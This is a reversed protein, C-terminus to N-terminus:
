KNSRGPSGPRRHSTQMPPRERSDKGEVVMALDNIPMRTSLLGLLVRATGKGDVESVVGLKGRFAGSLVQVQAGKEIPESSLIPESKVAAPRPESVRRSSAALHKSGSRLRAEHQGVPGSAEGVLSAGKASTSRVGASSDTKFLNGLSPRPRTRDYDIRERTRERSKETNERRHRETEARQREVEATRKAANRVLEDHMETLKEGIGAADDDCSWVVSQYVPALALMADQLQEDLLESHEIALDRPINWGIWLAQNESAAREILALLSERTLASCPENSEGTVAIAFQEPLDQIFRVIRAAREPDGLRARLTRFDIWAQPHIQTCVRIEVHDLRLGLFAHRYLPSPDRLAGALGRHHDLLADLEGRSAESRWLFVWQCDVHHGNWVSPHEDSAHVDVAINVDSLRSVVGRVWGLARQKFELRPRSYANSTARDPHYADFDHETLGLIPATM